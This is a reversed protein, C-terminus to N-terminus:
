CKFCVNGDDKGGGATPCDRAFHGTENCKYCTAGGKAKGEEKGLDIAPCDKAFHGNQNCKYCTIETKPKAFSSGDVNVKAVSGGQKQARKVSLKLDEIMIQAEVVESASEPKDFRILAWNDRRLM